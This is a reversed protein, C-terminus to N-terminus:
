NKNNIIETTKEYESEEEYFNRLVINLLGSKSESDEDLYFNKIDQDIVYWAAESLNLHQKKDKEFEDFYFGM